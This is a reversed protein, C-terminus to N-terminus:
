AMAELLIIPGNECSSAFVCLDADAWAEPLEDHPLAGDYTIFEHSPDVESLAAQLRNLAPPYAPGVLRLAVPLGARRLEAVGRAVNWQHKYVDVISVYLIRLPDELTRAELPRQPRPAIRFPSDIGHPIVRARPERGIAAVVERQAYRTLFIIGDAKRFSSRQTFALIENRLRMASVGYRRREAAEFPLMNQSMLVLPSYRYPANGGPAFLLSCQEALHPLRAAQWRVRSWLPGDLEPPTSIELWPRPEFRAATARPAWVIVRSFGHAPPDAAALLSVVHTVGGGARLNSADIGLVASRGHDGFRIRQVSPTWRRLAGGVRERTPKERALDGRWNSRVRLRM